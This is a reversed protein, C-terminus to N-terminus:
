KHGFNRIAEDAADQLVAADSPDIKVISDKFQITPSLSHASRDTIMSAIVIAALYSGEITPHFGDPGYLALKSNKRWAARWAEGAPFFIGEVSRAALVYSERVADFDALRIAAPWVMYLAPTAGSERIVRAFKRTANVLVVRSEPLASPGQQLIVINWKGSQITRAAEGSDWQDDLSAGPQMVVHVEFRRSHTSDILAQIMQPMNNAATLSNGVFLIRYTEQPTRNAITNSSGFLLLFVFMVVSTFSKLKRNHVSDAELVKEATSENIYVSTKERAARSIV